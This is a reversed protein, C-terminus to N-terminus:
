RETRFQFLPFRSSLHSFKDDCPKHMRNKHQVLKAASLFTGDGGVSLLMDADSELVDGEYLLKLGCGGKRLDSLLTKVGDDESAERKGIYIAINM